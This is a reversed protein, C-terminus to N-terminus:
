QQRLDRAEPPAPQGSRRAVLRSFGAKSGALWQM